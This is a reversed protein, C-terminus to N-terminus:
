IDADMQAERLKKLQEAVRREVELQNELNQVTNTLIAEFADHDCSGRAGDPFEKMYACALLPIICKKAMKADEEAKHIAKFAVDFHHWIQEMVRETQTQSCEFWANQLQQIPEYEMQKIGNQFIPVNNSVSRHLNQLVIMFQNDPKVENVAKTAVRWTEDQREEIKRKSGGGGSIRGILTITSGDVINCERLNM